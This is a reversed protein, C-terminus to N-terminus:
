QWVVAARLNLAYKICKFLCDRNGYIHNEGWKQTYCVPSPLKPKLSALSKECRSAGQALLKVITIHLASTNYIM